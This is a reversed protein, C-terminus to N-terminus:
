IESFIKVPKNNERLASSFLKSGEGKACKGKNHVTIGAKSQREASASAARLECASRYEVGDSGCVEYDGNKCVCVGLESRKKNKLKKKGEQHKVCEFGPACRTVTTDRM